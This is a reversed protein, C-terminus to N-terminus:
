ATFQKNDGALLDPQQTDITKSSSMTSDEKNSGLPADEVEDAGGLICDEFTEHRVVRAHPFEDNTRECPLSGDEKEKAHALDAELQLAKSADVM